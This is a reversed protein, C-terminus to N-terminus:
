HIRKINPKKRVKLKGRKILFNHSKVSFERAKAFLKVM